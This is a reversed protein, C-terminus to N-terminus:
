HELNQVLISKTMDFLCKFLLSLLKTGKTVDFTPLSQNAIKPVSCNVMDWYIQMHSKITEKLELNLIQTNKM